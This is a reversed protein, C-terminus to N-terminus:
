RMASLGSGLISWSPFGEKRKCRCILPYLFNSGGSFCCTANVPEIIFSNILRASVERSFAMVAHKEKQELLFDKFKM